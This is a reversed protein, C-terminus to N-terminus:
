IGKAFPIGKWAYTNNEGELGIVSGGSTQRLSNEDFSKSCGVLLALLMFPIYIKIRM